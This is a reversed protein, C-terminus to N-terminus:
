IADDDVVPAQKTAGGMDWVGVMPKSDLWGRLSEPDGFRYSVAVHHWGSGPAFGTRSTWRHWHADKAAPKAENGEPPTAFLFSVRAEGNLERVRLAWNQNDRAFGKAGTRGKSVLYLNETKRIEPLNLWAELTIEDGNTFKYPSGAGPDAF